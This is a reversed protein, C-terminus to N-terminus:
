RSRELAISVAGGELAGPKHVEIAVREARPFKELVTQALTESLSEILEFHRSLAVHRLLEYLKSYDLTDRVADSKAATAVSVYVAADIRIEQRQTREHPLAGVSARPININQLKIWAHTSDPTNFM